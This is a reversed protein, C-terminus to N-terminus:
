KLDDDVINRGLKAYDLIVGLYKDPAKFMSWYPIPRSGYIDHYMWAILFVTGIYFSSVCLFAILLLIVIVM